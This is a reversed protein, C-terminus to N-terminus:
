SPLSGSHLKTRQALRVEVTRALTEVVAELDEHVDVNTFRIIELGHGRLHCERNADRKTAMEGLHSEGDVEVVLNVDFSYFDVVCCGISVQRRFRGGHIANRRLRQWLKREAPVEAKRLARRLPTMEKRNTVRPM